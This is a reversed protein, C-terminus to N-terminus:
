VLSAIRSDTFDECTFRVGSLEHEEHTTLLGVVDIGARNGALIGTPSDEFIVCDAPDASLLSAAKLYIDPAPKGQAVMRANVVAKFYPRIGTEDLIFDINEMPGNSAVAAHIGKSQALQLFAILGEAPKLHPRFLERYMAEKEQAYAEIQSAPIPGFLFEMIMENTRGTISHNYIDPNMPLSYRECFAAFAKYHYENNNVLVGDMDFLLAKYKKVPSQM